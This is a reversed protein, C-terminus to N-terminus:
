PDITQSLAPLKKLEGTIVTVCQTFDENALEAKCWKWLEGALEDIAELEMDELPHKGKVSYIAMWKAPQKTRKQNKFPEKHSLAWLDNRWKEPAKGEIIKLVAKKGWLVIECLIYASHDEGWATGQRNLKTDWQKPLFRVYGKSLEMPVVGVTAAESKIKAHLAEGLLQVSDPRFELIADLARTHKQYIKRALKAIETNEMFSEKLLKLYHDLLVRPESGIVSQQENVCEELVDHVQQYTASAWAEDEPDEERRTLFIFLRHKAKKFTSEVRERYKILQGKSQVAKVKNEIGIIFEDGDLTEIRLLLDIHNWERYVEVSRISLSDIEVPDLFSADESESEHFVRMLWRRLFLDKLGHAEEPQLLWALVNSHRIEGHEFRLVRFLNFTGLLQELERLEACNVVLSNLDNLVTKVDEPSMQAPPNPTNSM